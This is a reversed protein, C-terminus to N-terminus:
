HMAGMVAGAGGIAGLIISTVIGLVVACVVTLATYGVSKEAPNKMLHPLGLYLLYIGYLSALLVLTGLLPVLMLIGALWSPTYAYVALKLANVPDKQGDFTPALADIILALVYVAVLGLVYGVILQVLGAAVGTRVTGIFPMSMGVLTMGIFGCIAPIAALIMAYGTFLSQATASEGAIKPWETSPSLCIGKAREILKAFDM